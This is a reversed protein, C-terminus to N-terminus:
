DHEASLAAGIRNLEDIERSADALRENFAPRVTMLHIHGLANEVMREVLSAPTQPPLYAYVAGDIRPDKFRDDSLAIVRVRPTGRVVEWHSALVREASAIVVAGAERQLMADDAAAARMFRQTGALSDRAAVDGEFYVVVPHRTTRAPTSATANVPASM